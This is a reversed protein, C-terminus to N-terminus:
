DVYDLLIRRAKQWPVRVTDTSRLDGKIYKVTCIRADYDAWTEWALMISTDADLDVCEGCEITDTRIDMLWLVASKDKRLEKLGLKATDEDVFYCREEAQVWGFVGKIDHRLELYM